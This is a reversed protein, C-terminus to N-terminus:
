NFEIRQINNTTNMSSNNNNHFHDNAMFSAYLSFLVHLSEILNKDGEAKYCPIDVLNCSIKALLELPLPVNSNNLNIKSLNSEFDSDWIQMLNDIEPMKKSYFVSPPVKNKQVEQVDKIWGQIQKPNKHVNALSHVKKESDQRKKYFEKILLDLYSKKSMNLAPEDLLELGLPDLKKDPRPIKLYADVEGVAPIYDPIFPKLECKLSIEKPEFEDMYKFIERTDEDLNINELEKDLITLNKTTQPQPNPIEDFNPQVLKSNQIEDDEEDEEDEENPPTPIYNQSDDTVNVEEDVLQNKIEQQEIIEDEDELEYEEDIVDNYIKKGELKSEM